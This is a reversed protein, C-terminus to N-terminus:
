IWVFGNSTHRPSRYMQLVAGVVWGYTFAPILYAFVPISTFMKVWPVKVSDGSSVSRNKLILELEEAGLYPHDEPTDYVIVYYIIAIILNFAGFLYFVSPWGGLFGSDVLIGALSLSVLNAFISGSTVVSSSLTRESTLLVVVSYLCSWFVGFLLQLYELNILSRISM